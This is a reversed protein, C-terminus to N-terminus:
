KALENAVGPATAAPTERRLDAVCEVHQTQPFMDLPVVRVVRYVGGACLAELDRALTAPHCSVYLIQAPRAARLPTIAEARCGVRPPDLVVATREASFRALLEPLLAVADGAVFEGNGVGRQQANQRAAAVALRDYEVGV